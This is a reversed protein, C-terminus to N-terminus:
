ENLHYTLHGFKRDAVDDIFVLRVATSNDCNERSNLAILSVRHIHFAVTSELKNQLAVQDRMLRRVSLTLHGSSGASGHPVSSREWTAATVIALLVAAGILSVCLLLGDEELYALSMLAVLLAQVIQLLPLPMLFLVDSSLFQLVSRRRAVDPSVHWRPHVIKEMFIVIPLARRLISALSASPLQYIAVRRPFTPGSWGLIMEFAPIALLAGALISIGPV